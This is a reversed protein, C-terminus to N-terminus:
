PEFTLKTPTNEKTIPSTGLEIKAQHLLIHLVYYFNYEKQLVHLVM